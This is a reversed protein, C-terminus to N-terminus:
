DHSNGKQQTAPLTVIFTSGHGPQSRATLDGGHHYAIKRCIALGMGTGEYANRTHLRQFLNFIRDLYKEEFGIGNDSITLQCLVENLPGGGRPRPGLVTQAELKVVPAEEPRHFKLANGLLNQILQRMQVPEAELTPLTGLEVRGKVQEIRGELDSVIERAMAALDVMLAQMRRAAKQMRELYDSSEPTFTAGCKERLRDGFVVIKRLPEQLDHSAVYAFDQLERNSRELQSNFEHLKEEVNKRETIDSFIGLLGAVQGDEDMVPVRTVEIVRREGEVLDVEETVETRGSELVRRDNSRHREAAERAFLDYDTKGILDETPKGALRAFGANASVFVLDRNKFVVQQPLGDVLTRYLQESKHLAEQTLKLENV